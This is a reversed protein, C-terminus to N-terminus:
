TGSSKWKAAISDAVRDAAVAISVAAISGAPGGVVVGSLASVTYAAMRSTQEAKDNTMQMKKAASYIACRDLESAVTPVLAGAAVLLKAGSAALVSKAIVNKSISSAIGNFSTRVVSRVVEDVQTSHSIGSKLARTFHECNGMTLSYGQTGVANIARTIVLDDPLMSEVAEVVVTQGNAFESMTIRQVSMRDASTCSGANTALHVVTGDGLDIGYHWYLVPGRRCRIRILDARAM